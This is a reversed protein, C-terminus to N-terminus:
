WSTNLITLDSSVVASSLTWGLATSPDNCLSGPAFNGRMWPTWLVKWASLRDVGSSCLILVVAAQLTAISYFLASTWLRLIWSTGNIHLWQSSTLLLTGTGYELFTTFYLQFEKHIDAFLGIKLSHRRWDIHPQSSKSSFNLWCIWWTKSYFTQWKCVDRYDFRWGFTYDSSSHKM